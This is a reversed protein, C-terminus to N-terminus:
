ASEDYEVEEFDKLMQRLEAPCPAPACLVHVCRPQPSQMLNVFVMLSYRGDDGLLLDDGCIPCYRNRAQEQCIEGSLRQDSRESKTM